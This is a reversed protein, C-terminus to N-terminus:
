HRISNKSNILANLVHVEWQGNILLYRKAYGEREFGLTKLLN